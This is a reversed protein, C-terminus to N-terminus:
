RSKGSNERSANSSPATPNRQSHYFYRMFLFYSIGLFFAWILTYTYKNNWLLSVQIQTEWTLSEYLDEPGIFALTFPIEEFIVVEEGQSIDLDKMIGKELFPYNLVSFISNKNPTCRVWGKEPDHYEVWYHLLPTRTISPFSPSLYLGEILRSPIGRTRALATLLLAKDKESGERNNLAELASSYDGDDKEQISGAIFRQLININEEKSNDLETLNRAASVIQPHSTEIGESPGLYLQYPLSHMEPRPHDKLIVQYSLRMTNKGPPLDLPDLLYYKQGNTEELIKRAPTTENIKLAADVIEQNHNSPPMFFLGRNFLLPKKEEMHLKEVVYYTSSGPILMFILATGTTLLTIVIILSILLLNRTPM